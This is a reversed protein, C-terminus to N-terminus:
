SDEVATLVLNAVCLLTMGERVNGPFTEPKTQFLPKVGRFADVPTVDSPLVLSPVTPM